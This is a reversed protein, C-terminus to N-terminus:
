IASASYVKYNAERSPPIWIPVEQMKSMGERGSKEAWECKVGSEKRRSSNVDQEEFNM